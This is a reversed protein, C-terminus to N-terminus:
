NIKFNEEKNLEELVKKQEPTIMKPSKIEIKVILNGNYEYIQKMGKGKLIYEKKINMLEPLKLTLEAEFHPIKIEKGILVDLPTLETTYILNNGELEFIENQKLEIGVFLGGDEGNPKQNGFTPYHIRGNPRIDRPLKFKFTEPKLQTGKGVCITCLTIPIKGQGNCVECIVQHINKFFSNGSVRRQTGEGNCERCIRWEGGTGACKNCTKERKYKIHKEKSFYIEEISVSITIALDKGKPQARRSRRQGSFFSQFSDFPNGSNFSDGFLDELRIDGGRDYKARKNKDSLITYAESIEKFTEEGQPNKDPHYKLSLKRYVKKIEADTAEKSVGLIEYYNKM